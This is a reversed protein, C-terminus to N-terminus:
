LNLPAFMASDILCGDDEVAVVEGVAAAVFAVVAGADVSVAEAEV